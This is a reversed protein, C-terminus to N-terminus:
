MKNDYSKLRSHGNLIEKDEVSFFFFFNLLVCWNPLIESLKPKDPLKGMILLLNYLKPLLVVNNINLGKCHM